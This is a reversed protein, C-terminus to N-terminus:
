DSAQLRAIVDEWRSEGRRAWLELVRRCKDQSDNQSQHIIIIIIVIVLLSSGLGLVTM